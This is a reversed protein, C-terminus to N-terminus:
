HIVHSEKSVLLVKESMGNLMDVSQIPFRLTGGREGM